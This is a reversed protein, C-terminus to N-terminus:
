DRTLAPVVAIAEIEVLQGSYGLTSVGLLTSAHPGTSLESARVVDWARLLHEHEGAVVYVTTKMVHELGSGAARLARDLNNLTCRTQLEVDGPGVLEGKADLPVAGATIVLREGPDLAVVHAYDPTPALDDLTVRTPM